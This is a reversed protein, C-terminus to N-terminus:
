ERIRFSLLTVDDSFPIEGRFENIERIVNPHLNEADELYYKQVCQQLREEGFEEEVSNKAEVAGDTYGFLLFGTTNELLGSNVFPLPELIGLVTTGSALWQTQRDAGILLPPHHGANIYSLTKAQGDYLAFFGTVFREGGLIRYLAYNLESVIHKLETLQRVLVRLSAQLSSMLLAAPIGKGSVDAICIFYKDDPLAIVDYYDGSVSQHPLYDVKAVVRENDPLQKPFLRNQVRKATQLERNMAEQELQSAALKKNEIAVVILNTLTQIFKTDAVLRSEDIDQSLFVYALVADKHFVPILVDFERFVEPIDATALHTAERVDLGCLEHHINDFRAKTGFVAKTEWEGDRICLLLKQINLNARLIFHYIKYLADEPLNSNIAQTVELLSNLEMQKIHLQYEATDTLPLMTKM